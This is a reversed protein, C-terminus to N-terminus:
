RCPPDKIVATKRLQVGWGRHPISSIIYGGDNTPQVTSPLDLYESATLIYHWVLNGNSDIKVINAEINSDYPGRFGLMFGDDCTQRVSIDHLYFFDGNIIQHWREEGEANLKLLFVDGYGDSMAGSYTHGVVIYGGDSTSEVTSYTISHHSSVPHEGGGRAPYYITEWQKTGDASTKIVMVYDIDYPPDSNPHRSSATLIYGGDYTQRVSGGRIADNNLGRFFQRWVENGAADTKILYAGTGSSGTDGAIIYGGDDTQRVSNAKMHNTGDFTKSWLENGSPDTKILGVDNGGGGFSGGKGTLVYGGDSTQQVPDSDYSWSGGYTKTWVKNGQADIKILRGSGAIIYGGDSTQQTAVISHVGAILNTWVTSAKDVYEVDWKLANWDFPRRRDHKVVFTNVSPTPIGDTLDGFLLEEQVVSTHPSVSVARSKVDTVDHGDSVAEARYTYEYEFRNVRNRRILTPNGITLTTPKRLILNSGDSLYIKISIPSGDALTGSLPGFHCGDTDSCTYTGYSYNFDSGYVYCRGTRKVELNNYEHVWGDGGYIRLSGETSLTGEFTISGDYVALDSNSRVKMSGWLNGFYGGFIIGRKGDFRNLFDVWGDTMVFRSEDNLRLFQIFGGSLIAESRDFLNFTTSWVDGNVLVRTQDLADFGRSIDGNPLITILSQDHGTVSSEPRSAINLRTDDYTSIRQFAHDVPSTFNVTTYNYPPDTNNYVELQEDAAAVPNNHVAGDDLVLAMAPADTLGIVMALALVTLLVNKKM